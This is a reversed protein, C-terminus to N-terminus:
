TGPPKSGTGTTTTTTTTVTVTTTTTAHVPPAVPITVTLTATDSVCSGASNSVQVTYVGSDGVLVSPIVFTSATAQAINVGGKMWQYTFPATGDNTVSFAVQNGVLAAGASAKVSVAALCFLTALALIRSLTKM